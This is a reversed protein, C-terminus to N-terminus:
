QRMEAALATTGTGQAPREITVEYRERLDAYFRENAQKRQAYTWERLVDDRIEELPAIRGEDRAALLVLHVGYGSPVPGMWTGTPAARLATEFRAGFLRALESATVDHFRHELLSSDGHKGADAAGGARQLEALLAQMDSTLREGHRQPDLYVQSLSYRAESHFKGPHARLYDQLQADTPEPVPTVDESVFELKQMLRRRIITDDQDLGLAKAERYFIEERVAADILEDLEDKAPARQHMRAFGGALQGIRGQTIVIHEGAGGGPGALWGHLVFLGLGLLLFHVLPERLLKRM